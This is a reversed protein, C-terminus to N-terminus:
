FLSKREVSWWAIFAALCLGASVLLMNSPSISINSPFLSLWKSAVIQPEFFRWAVVLGVLLGIVDPLFARKNIRLTKVPLRNMVLKTFKDDILEDEEEEVRAEAFLQALDQEPNSEATVSSHRASRQSDQHLKDQDQDTM